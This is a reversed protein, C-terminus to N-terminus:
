FPPCMRLRYLYVGIYMDIHPRAKAQTSKYRSFSALFEGSHTVLYTYFKISKYSLKFYEFHRIGDKIQICFVGIYM